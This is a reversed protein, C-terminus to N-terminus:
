DQGRRAPAVGCRSSGVRHVEVFKLGLTKERGVADRHGRSPGRRAHRLRPRGGFCQPSVGPHDLRLDVRASPSLGTPDLPRTGEVLDRGQDPSHESGSEYRPLRRLRPLRDGGDQDFRRGVDFAFEVQTQEDIPSSALNCDDGRRRAAHVDFLHRAVSGSLSTVSNM